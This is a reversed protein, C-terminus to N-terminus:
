SYRTFKTDRNFGIVSIGVEKAMDVALSSVASVSMVVPIQAKFAKAIMEYSIRGSIIAIKASKLLKNSICYGVCKDFANHRGIDESLIIKKGNEDLFMVAHSGGTKQFLKQNEKLLKFWNSSENLDTKIQPVKEGKSEPLYDLSKKGCIGCSSVSLLSRSNLYADKVEHNKQLISIISGLKTERSSFEFPKKFNLLDEGHLLGLALNLDDGPTRMVVSFSQNQFEIELPAEVLLEDEVSEIESNISRLAQYTRTSEM